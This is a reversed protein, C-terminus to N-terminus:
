PTAQFATETYRKLIPHSAAPWPPLAHGNRRPNRLAGPAAVAVDEIPRDVFPGSRDLVLDDRPPAVEVLVRLEAIALRPGGGPSSPPAASMTFSPAISFGAGSATNPSCTM